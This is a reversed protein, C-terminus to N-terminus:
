FWVLGKSIQGDSRTKICLKKQGNKIGKEGRKGPQHNLQLCLNSQRGLVLWLWWVPSEADRRVLCDQQFPVVAGLAGWTFGHRRQNWSSKAGAVIVM